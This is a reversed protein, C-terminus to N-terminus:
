DMHDILPGVQHELWWKPARSKINGSSDQLPRRCPDDPDGPRCQLVQTGCIACPGDTDGPNFCNPCMYIVEDNGMARRM